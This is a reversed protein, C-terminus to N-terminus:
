SPANRWYHPTAL